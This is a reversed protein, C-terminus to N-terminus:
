GAAVPKRTREPVLLVLPLVVLLILVVVNLAKDLDGYVHLHRMHYILHLVNFTLLVLATVQMFMTNKVQWLAILGLVTLALFMAGADKALHENFPGLQPLWSRGMGPFNEYWHRPAGYAWGGTVANAATMVVLVLRRLTITM